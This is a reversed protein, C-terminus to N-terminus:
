RPVAKLKVGGDIRNFHDTRWKIPIVTKECPELRFNRFVQYMLIRAEMLAIQMGICARPGMGFPLFTGTKMNLKNEPTFREPDFKDPDPFYKPDSHLGQIPIMVAMDEPIVVDTGPIKWSKTCRRVTFAFAALRSSEHFVQDLYKLEKVDDGTINAGVKSAMDDIEALLRDQVEPDIAVFYFVMSLLASVTDYGDLFFQMLTRNIMTDTMFKAALAQKQGKSDDNDPDLKQDRIKMMLGLVDNPYSTSGNRGQLIKETMNLFFNVSQPKFISISFLKAVRPISMTLFFRWTEFFGDGNTVIENGDSKITQFDMSFVIRGICDIAYHGTLKEMDVEGNPCRKMAEIVDLAPANIKTGINKINKLSFAPTISTRLSRWEDGIANSLGLENMPLHALEKPIFAFDVFHDFDTVLVQKILDPDKIMLTPATGDYYIGYKRDGFQKYIDRYFQIMSKTQMVLDKTNGFIMKPPISFLGKKEYVGYNKTLSWYVYLVFLGLLGLWQVRSLIGFVSVIEELAWNFVSM